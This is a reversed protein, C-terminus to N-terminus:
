NVEIVEQSTTETIEQELYYTKIKQLADKNIKLLRRASIGFIKQMDKFIIDEDATINELIDNYRIIQGDFDVEKGKLDEIVIGHRM